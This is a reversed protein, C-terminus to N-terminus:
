QNLAQQILSRIIPALNNRKKIIQPNRENSLNEDHEKSLNNSIFHLYSREEAEESGQIFFGIESDLFDFPKIFHHLAKTEMITNASNLHTGFALQPHKINKFINKWQWVRNDLVTTDGTALHYNPILDPRIGGVKATFLVRKHGLSVLYRTIRSLTDGWFCHHCLLYTVSVSGLMQQSFTYNGIEQWAESNAIETLGSGIILWDSVPVSELGSNIVPYWCEKETPYHFVVTKPDLDNLALFTSILSAYHEVYFYGPFCLITIESGRIIATPRQWNEIKGNKEFNSIIANNRDHAGRVIIKNWKKELLLHHMKMEVYQHLSKGMSHDSANSIFFPKMRIFQSIAARSKM